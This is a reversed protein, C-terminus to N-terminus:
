LRFLQFLKEGWFLTVIFGLVLFPGFAIRNGFSAKKAILLLIAFVGGTLFSLFLWVAVQPWGLMAGLPLALKVDGLGMGRGRTIFTLFLLFFSAGFGAALHAFAPTKGFVFLGVAVLVLLFFVLGDPILQTELDIVFIAILTSFLVVYVPLLFAGLNYPWLLANKLAFGLGVFVMASSLEILPYRPSIPKRCKRCKGKLVFFSVVPINDYWSIKAKCKPCFSRGWFFDIKRPWRYSFATVFSGVCLGLLGLLIPLLYM